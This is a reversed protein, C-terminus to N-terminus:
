QFSVMIFRWERDGTPTSSTGPVGLLARGRRVTNDSISTACNITIKSM